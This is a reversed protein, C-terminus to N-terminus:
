SEAHRVLNSRAGCRRRQGLARAIEPTLDDGLGLAVAAFAHLADARRELGRTLLDLGLEAAADHGAHRALLRM